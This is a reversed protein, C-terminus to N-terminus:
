EGGCSAKGEFRLYGDNGATQRASEFYAVQYTGPLDGEEPDGATEIVIEVSGYEGQEREIYFSLRSEDNDLWHHVLKDDLTLKRFDPAIGEAKLEAAARFNFLPSGLGHTVGSEVTMSLNHDEITCWLGGSAQAAPSFLLTYVFAAAAFRIRM